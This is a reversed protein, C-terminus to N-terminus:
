LRSQIIVIPFPLKSGPATRQLLAQSKRTSIENSAVYRKADAAFQLRCRLLKDSQMGNNYRM